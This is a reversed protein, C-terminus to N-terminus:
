ALVAHRTERWGEIRRGGSIVPAAGAAAAYRVPCAETGGDGPAFRLTEPLEYTGAAVEVTVPKDLGGRMARLRRLADRAGALSAVPGDAGGAAPAPLLGSWCDNGAPSVHLRLVDSNM